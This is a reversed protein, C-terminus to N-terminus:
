VTKRETEKIGFLVHKKITKKNTYTKEKYKSDTKNQSIVRM